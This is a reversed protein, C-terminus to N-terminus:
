INRIFTHSHINQRFDMMQRDEVKDVQITTHLIGRKRALMTAARTVLEPHDNCAIHATLVPKGYAILWVHLDELKHVNEIKKFDQALEKMDIHPPASDMLLLVIDRLVPLSFSVAIVSFSISLIPDLIKYDDTLFIVLAVIIVGITQTMDGIIHAWAAKINFNQGQHEKVLKQDPHAKRDEEKQAEEAADKVLAEEEDEKEAELIMSARRDTPPPAVEDIAHDYPKLGAGGCHSHGHGDDAEMGGLHFGGSDHLMYAMVLNVILAGCATILMYLPQVNQYDHTYIRMVAEYMIWATLGWILTISFLAGLVEARVFGFTYQLSAKRTAIHMAVLSFVFGILDSVLHAVDTLIAISHSLVAGITELIIFISCIIVIKLITKRAGDNAAEIARPNYWVNDELTLRRKITPDYGDSQDDAHVNIVVEEPKNDAPDM